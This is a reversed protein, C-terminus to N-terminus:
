TLRGAEEAYGVPILFVTFIVLNRIRIICRDHNTQNSTMVIFM